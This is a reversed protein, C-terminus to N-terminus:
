RWHMSPLPPANAAQAVAVAVGQARAAEMDVSDVGAGNKAVIRL